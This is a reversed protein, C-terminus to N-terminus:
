SYKSHRICRDLRERQKVICQYDNMGYIRACVELGLCEDACPDSQSLSNPTQPKRDSLKNRTIFKTDDSYDYNQDM